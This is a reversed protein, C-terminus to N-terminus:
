GASPPFIIPPKARRIARRGDLYGHYDEFVYDDSQQPALPSMSLLGDDTRHIVISSESGDTSVLDGGILQLTPMGFNIKFNPAMQVTKTVSTALLPYIMSVISAPSGVIQSASGTILGCVGTPGLVPGGSQGSLVEFDALFSPGDCYGKAFRSVFVAKVAGRAIRIHHNYDRLFGEPDAEVDRLAIGGPPMGHYGIATVQAGGLPLGPSLMLPAEVDPDQFNAISGIVLDTPPAAGVNELPFFHVRFGSPTPYHVLVHFGVDKMAYEGGAEFDNRLRALRPERKIGEFISHAATLVYGHRSILFATGVPFVRGGESIFLPYVSRGIRHGWAPLEVESSIGLDTLVDHPNYPGVRM